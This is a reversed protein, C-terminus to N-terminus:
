KSSFHVKIWGEPVVGLEQMLLLQIWAPDQESRLRCALEETVKEERRKIELLEHRRDILGAMELDRAKAAPFYLFASLGCLILAWLSGRVHQVVAGMNKVIEVKYM